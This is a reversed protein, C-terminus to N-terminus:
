ASPTRTPTRRRILTAISRWGILMVGLTITAVIVFALATGQGSLARFLMGGAVTIIWLGVGPWLPGFPRRWAVTVIWGLALAALFPWWTLLLGTLTPNEDHTGRGIMVFVLTAIVDIAVATAVTRANTTM